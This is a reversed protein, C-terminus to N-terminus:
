QMRSVEFATPIQAGGPGRAVLAWLLTEEVLETGHVEVAARLATQAVSIASGRLNALPMVRAPDTERWLFKVVRGASGNSSYADRMNGADTFVNPVPHGAFSYCWLAQLVLDNVRMSAFRRIGEETVCANDALRGDASITVSTPDIMTALAGGGDVCLIMEPQIDRSDIPAEPPAQQGSGAVAAAEGVAPGAEGEAEGGAEGAEEGSEGQWGEGGGERVIREQALRHHEFTFHATQANLINTAAAEQESTPWEIEEGDLLLTPPWGRTARTVGVGLESTDGGGRARLAKAGARVTAEVYTYCPPAAYLATGWGALAVVLRLWWGAQTDRGMAIVREPQCQVCSTAVGEVATTTTTTTTAAAAAAATAAAGFAVPCPVKLGSTPPYTPNGPCNCYWSMRRDCNACRELAEGCVVCAM